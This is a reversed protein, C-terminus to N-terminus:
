PIMGRAAGILPRGSALALVAVGSSLVDSHPLVVADSARILTAPEDDELRGYRV